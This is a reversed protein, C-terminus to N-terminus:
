YYLLEDGMKERESDNNMLYSLANKFKEKDNLPVLFGNNGNILDAPGAVCDYAVVPLKCAMAEGLANPFGESSSTFAFIKSQYYFRSVDKQVGVLQIKEEMSYYKIKKQLDNYTDSEDNGGVIVLKWDQLDIQSCIEILQDFNKSPILRGVSLIINERQCIYNNEIPIKIPNGIVVCNVNNIIKRLLMASITTQAIVGAARRYSILKLLDFLFGFSKGPQSRDSIYIPLPIGICTLLIFSNYMEGFSLLANPKLRKILKRIYIILKLLYVVRNQTQINHYHVVVRNNLVYFITKKRGYLLLHVEVNDYLSFNNALESMVREMGGSTLSPIVLLLKTVM